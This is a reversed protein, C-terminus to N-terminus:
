NNKEGPAAYQANEAGSLRRGVKVITAIADGVDRKDMAFRGTVSGGEVKASWALLPGIDPPAEGADSKAISAGMRGSQRILVPTSLAVRRVDILIYVNADDPLQAMANTVARNSALAPRENRVVPMLRRVGGNKGDITYVIAWNGSSAM